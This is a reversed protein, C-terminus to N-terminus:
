EPTALISKAEEVFAEALPDADFYMSGFTRALEDPPAPDFGLLARGLARAARTWPRRVRDFYRFDGPHEAHM